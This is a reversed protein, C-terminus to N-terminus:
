CTEVICYTKTKTSPSGSKKGFNKVIASFKWPLYLRSKNSSTLPIFDDSDVAPDTEGTLDLTHHYTHCTTPLHTLQVTFLLNISVQLPIM